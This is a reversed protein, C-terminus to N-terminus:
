EQQLLELLASLEVPKVLHHDFGAARARERDQSLGYGTVAIFKARAVAPENRLQRALAYGDTGPLGIDLLLVEPPDERVLALAAAGDYGIRPRHGHAQLLIALSDAADQNDDIVLVRRPRFSAAPQAPSSAGSADAIFAPLRVRFESGRGRGESHAEVVGGHMTVLTKVLALGIGLGGQSRDLAPEDQTFLDFVHPLAQPRIGIGSDRVSIVVDEGGSHASLEIRGRPETYKAANNLLNGIVQALRAPDGHVLLREGPLTLQLTHQREEVMSRALEIGARLVQSVEVQEKRLTVKGLTIRSVDLLDEVLRTMHQVQRQVIDAVQRGAPADSLYRPLVQAANAIPALPNRLEHALMALFEDKRRDAARLLEGQALSQELLQAREAEILKQETIDVLVGILGRVRGASDREPVNVSRMFREGIVPYAILAEYQVFEGRLVRELKDQVARFAAEGLFEPIRQGLLDQPQLGFRAAYSANVFKYRLDTDAHVIFVPLAHAILRLQEENARLADLARRRETMDTFLAMAGIINGQADKLPSSSALVALETGDRRRFRFDFQESRGGLNRSVHERGAQIDEPFMYDLPTGALMQERDFGLLEAMRANVYQTRGELDLSWVGENAMEAMMRFREESQRLQAEVRKAETVDLIGSLLREQGGITVRQSTLLFQRVEGNKMRMAGELGRAHGQETLRRFLEGRVSPDVYTGLELSTRGIADERSYGTQALWADNVDLYRGQPYDHITMPLPHARFALAFSLESARHEQKLSELRRLVEEDSARSGHLDIGAQAALCLEELARLDEGAWDRPRRDLVILRALLAGERDLLPVCICAQVALAAAAAYPPPHALVFPQAARPDSCLDQLFGALPPDRPDVDGVTAPVSCGEDQQQCVLCIPAAMLRAALRSLRQLAAHFHDQREAPSAAIGNERATQTSAL